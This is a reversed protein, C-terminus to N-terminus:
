SNVALDRQRSAEELFHRHMHETRRLFGTWTTHEMTRDAKYSQFARLQSGTLDIADCVLTVTFGKFIRRFEEHGDLDLFRAMQDIYLQIRDWEQNKLKHNPRKIEIIQLGFDDASLVFDPRRTEADEEFPKLRIKQGTEKEFFKGFEARLTSLQRNSTIPSWLPNVLWPAEEISDHLAQELTAEDDKLEIIREIVKVRKEAIM